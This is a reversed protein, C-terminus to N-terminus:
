EAKVGKLIESAEVYVNRERELGVGVAIIDSRRVLDAPALPRANFALAPSTCCFLIPMSLVVVYLERFSLPGRIM